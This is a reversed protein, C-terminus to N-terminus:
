KVAKLIESLTSEMVKISDEIRSFRAETQQQQKYTVDLEGVLKNVKSLKDKVNDVGKLYNDYEQQMSKLMTVIINKDTSIFTNDTQAVELDSGLTWIKTTGSQEISVDVVMTINSIRPPTADQIVKGQSYEITDKNLIYVPFGKKLEKFKM